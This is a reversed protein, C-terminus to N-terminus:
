MYQCSANLASSLVRINVDCAHLERSPNGLGIMKALGALKTKSMLFHSIDIIDKPVPPDQNIEAFAKKLRPYDSRIIDHGIWIYGNLMPYVFTSNLAFDKAKARSSHNASLVLRSLAVSELTRSTVMNVDLRTNGYRDLKFDFFILPQEDSM